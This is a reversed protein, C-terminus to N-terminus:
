GTPTNLMWRHGFPDTLVAIRGYPNDTPERDMRAGAEVARRALADVDPVELHLTVTAGEGPRPAVVGIEPHADALFL